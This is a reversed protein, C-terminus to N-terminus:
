QKIAAEYLEPQTRRLESKTAPDASDWITKFREIAQMWLSGDNLFDAAVKKRESDSATSAFTHHESLDGLAFLLDHARKTLQKKQQQTVESSRVRYEGDSILGQKHAATLTSSEECQVSKARCAKQHLAKLREADNGQMPKHDAWFARRAADKGESTKADRVAKSLMNTDMRLQDIGHPAYRKELEALEAKDQATFTTDNM